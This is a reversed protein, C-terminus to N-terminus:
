RFLDNHNGTRVLTLGLKEEITFYILLWDPETHCERHRSWLGSLAHDRYQAPLLLGEALQEVVFALKKGDLGRRKALKFDKKFQSTFRVEYNM